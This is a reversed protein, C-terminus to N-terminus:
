SIVVEQPRVAERVGADRMEVFEIQANSLEARAPSRARVRCGADESRGDDLRNEVVLVAPTRLGGSSQSPFTM